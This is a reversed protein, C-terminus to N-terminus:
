RANYLSQPCRLLHSFASISVFRPLYQPMRLSTWYKFFTHKFLICCAFKFLYFHQLPILPMSKSKLLSCLYFVNRTHADHLIAIVHLTSIQSTKNLSPSLSFLFCNYYRIYSRKPLINWLGLIYIDKSTSFSIFHICKKNM